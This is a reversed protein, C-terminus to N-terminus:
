GYWRRTRRRQPTEPRALGCRSARRSASDMDAATTPPNHSRSSRSSPARPATLRPRSPSTAGRTSLLGTTHHRSTICPSGDLLFEGRVSARSYGLMSVCLTTYLVIPQIPLTPGPLLARFRITQESFTEFTTVVGDADPQRPKTYADPAEAQRRSRPPPTISPGSRAGFRGLWVRGGVCFLTLPGRVCGNTPLGNLGVALRPLSM